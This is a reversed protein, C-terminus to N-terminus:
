TSVKKRAIADIGEGSAGVVPDVFQRYADEYGRDILEALSQRRDSRRDYFGGFDLPGVPNHSPRIVFLGSFATGHSAVADRVAAAEIAALFEGVRGRVDRRSSDLTHPGGLDTTSTVVIVQEVGAVKMEALVRGVADPRTCLRHTEGQWSSEPAFVIHHPETVVPLSLAGGAADLVHDSAAGALDVTELVARAGGEAPEQPFHRRYPEALLTFIVDRRADLDHATVILERFRPQGLNEALLEAYRRALDADAPRAIPAAGKILQWLGQVFWGHTRRTEFVSGLLSWWIPGRRRRRESRSFSAAVASIALAAALASLCLVVFRPIVDPLANEAFAIELLRVQWEGMAGGAAAGLLGLFFAVPYVSAALVLVLPPVMVGALAAALALGAIKLAPRWAYLRGVRQHRWVGGPEWLRGGGDIAAYLANVVGMGCGAIVDVKVGAEDLARLVGAHYAGATGSGTLLLGTRLHPAYLPDRGATEPPTM